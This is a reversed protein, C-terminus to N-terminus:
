KAYYGDQDKQGMHNYICTKYMNLSKLVIKKMFQTSSFVLALVAGAMTMWATTIMIDMIKMINMIDMIDTIDMINTIDKIDMFDM